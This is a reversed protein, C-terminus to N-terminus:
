KHYTENNEIKFCRYIQELLVIRFLQHPMTMASFSLVLDSCKDVSETFGNSGGIIYCFSSKGDLKCRLIHKSFEESTMAKGEKKLAIVYDCGKAKAILQESEQARGRDTERFKSEGVEVVEVKAYGSIRKLYEAQAMKFYNEKLGGVCVIKIHM